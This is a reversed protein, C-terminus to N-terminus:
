TLASAAVFDTHEAQLKEVHRPYREQLNALGIHSPLAQLRALEAIKEAVLPSADVRAEFARVAQEANISHRPDSEATVGISALGQRVEARAEEVDQRAKEVAAEISGGIRGIIALGEAGLANRAFLLPEVANEFADRKQKLEAVTGALTAKEVESSEFTPMGHRHELIATTNAQVKGNFAVIASNIECGPVEPIELDAGNRIGNNIVETQASM